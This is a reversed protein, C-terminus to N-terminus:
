RTSAIVRGVIAARPIAFPSMHRRSVSLTASTSGSGVVVALYRLEPDDAPRYVIVDGPKFESALKYVLCRSGARLEPAVSDGTVRFPEAVAARLGLGLAFLLALAIAVRPAHKKIFTRVPGKARAIQAGLFRPSGFNKGLMNIAESLTDPLNAHQDCMVHLHECLEARVQRADAGCLSAAQMVQDLYADIAQQHLLSRAVGAQPHSNGPSCEPM